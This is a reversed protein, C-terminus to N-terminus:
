VVSKRDPADPRTYHFYAVTGGTALAAGIFMALLFRM